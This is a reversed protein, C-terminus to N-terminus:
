LFNDACGCDNAVELPWQEIKAPHKAIPRACASLSCASYGLLSVWARNRVDNATGKTGTAGNGFSSM